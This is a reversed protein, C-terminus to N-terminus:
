DRSDLEQARADNAGIYIETTKQAKHGLQAAVFPVSYGFEVHLMRAYAHRLLHAHLRVERGLHVAPAREVIAKASRASLPRTPSDDYPSGFARLAPGSRHGFLAAVDRFVDLIPQMEPVYVVARQVDGKGHRVFLAARGKHTQRMDDFTLACAEAVRLGTGALLAIVGMDRFSQATDAARYTDLLAMVENFTLRPHEADPVDRKDPAAIVTNHPAANNAIRIILEDVMAKRASFDGSMQTFLFDRLRNDTAAAHYQRRAAELYKARTAPAMDQALLHARYDRLDVQWWVLGADALWRAFVALQHKRSAPAAQIFLTNANTLTIAM